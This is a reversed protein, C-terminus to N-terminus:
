SIVGAARLTRRASDERTKMDKRVAEMEADDAMKNVWLASVYGIVEHCQMLLAIPKDRPSEFARIMLDLNDRDMQNV